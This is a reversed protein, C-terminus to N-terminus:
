TSLLIFYYSVLVFKKEQLARTQIGWPFKKLFSSLSHSLEQFDQSATWSSFHALSHQSFPYSPYKYEWEYLSATPSLIGPYEPYIDPYEPCQERINQVSIRLNRNQCLCEWFIMKFYNQPECTNTHTRKLVLELDFGASWLEEQCYPTGISFVFYFDVRRTFKLWRKKM